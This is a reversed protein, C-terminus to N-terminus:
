NQGRARRMRRICRNMIKTREAITDSLIKQRRMIRPALKALRALEAENAHEMWPAGLGFLDDLPPGGNDGIAAAWEAAMRDEAAEQAEVLRLLRDLGDDLM